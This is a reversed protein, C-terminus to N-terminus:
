SPRSGGVAYKGDELRLWDKEMAVVLADDILERLSEKLKRRIGGRTMPKGTELVILVCRKAVQEVQTQEESREDARVAAAAERQREVHSHRSLRAREHAETAHYAILSARVKCSTEWIVGARAWDEMTPEHRQELLAVLACLRAKIWGAHSDM